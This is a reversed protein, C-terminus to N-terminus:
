HRTSLAIELVADLEAMTFPKALFACIGLTERLGLVSDTDVPIRGSMAVITVHEQKTLSEMIFTLGGTGPMVLDVFIIEPPRKGMLSIATAVDPACEVMHGSKELMKSLTDLVMLEDDVVLIRAM